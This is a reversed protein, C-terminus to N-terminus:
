SILKSCLFGKRSILKQEFQWWHLSSLITRNTFFIILENCFIQDRKNHLFKIRRWKYKYYFYKAISLALLRPRAILPHSAVIQARSEPAIGARGAEGASSNLTCAQFVGSSGPLLATVNVLTAISAVSATDRVRLAQVWLYSSKM